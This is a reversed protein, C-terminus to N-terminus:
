WLAWRLGKGRWADPVQDPRQGGGAPLSPRGPDTGRVKPGGGYKRAPARCRSSANPRRENRTVGEGRDANVIGVVGQAGSHIHVHSVEVIQRNGRRHQDFTRILDAQLRLLKIAFGGYVDIFTEDMHRHAQRLFRLGSFGTAIIQVALLADLETEPKMSTLIALGANLTAEDLHDHPSPRLAEVLKGLMVDVFEDSMTDGFAQRLRARHAELNPTPAVCRDNGPQPKRVRVPPKRNGPANDANVLPAPMPPPASDDSAVLAIPRRRNAELAVETAEEGAIHM